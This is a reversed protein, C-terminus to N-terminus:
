TLKGSPLINYPSVGYLQGPPSGDWSSINLSLWGWHSPLLIDVLLLWGQMAIVQFAPQFTMSIWRHFMIQNGVNRSNEAELHELNWTRGFTMTCHGMFKRWPICHARILYPSSHRKTSLGPATFRHCGQRLQAMASGRCRLPMLQCNLQSGIVRTDWLNQMGSAGHISYKGVNVGFIVWIYTFIGYISCKRANGNYGLTKAYTMFECGLPSATLNIVNSHVCSNITCAAWHLAPNAERAFTLYFIQCPQLLAEQIKKTQNNGLIYTPHASILGLAGDVPQNNSITLHISAVKLTSRLSVWRWVTWSEVWNTTAARPWNGVSSIGVHELETSEGSFHVHLSLRLTRSQVPVSCVWNRTSCKNQKGFRHHLMWACLLIMVDLGLGLVIILYSINM